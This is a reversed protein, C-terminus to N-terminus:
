TEGPYGRTDGPIKSHDDILIYFMATKRRLHVQPTGHRIQAFSVHSGCASLGPNSTVQSDIRPNQAGPDALVLDFSTLSLAERLRM